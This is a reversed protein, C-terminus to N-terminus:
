SCHLQKGHRWTPLWPPAQPTTIGSTCCWLSLGEFHLASAPVWAMHPRTASAVRWWPTPLVGGKTQTGPGTGAWDTIHMM